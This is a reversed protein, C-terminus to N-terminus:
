QAELAALPQRYEEGRAWGEVYAASDPGDIESVTASYGREAYYQLLADPKVLMPEYEKTWVQVRYQQQLGAAFGLLYSQQEEMAEDSHEQWWSSALYQATRRATKIVELATGADDSMGLFYSMGIRENILYYVRFNDAITQCLVQFWLGIDRAVEVTIIQQDPPAQPQEALLEQAKLLAVEAEARNPNDKAVALLKQLRVKQLDTIM